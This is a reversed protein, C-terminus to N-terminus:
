LVHPEEEEFFPAALRMGPRADWRRTTVARTYRAAVDPQEARLRKVDIDTRVTQIWRCALAGELLGQGADGLWLQLQSDIERIHAAMADMQSQLRARLALSARAAEPLEVVRDPEPDFAARIAAATVTSADVPPPRRPLVHEYWFRRELDRLTDLRGPDPRVRRIYVPQGWVMGAVVAEPAGTVLLQHYVQILVHPPVQDDAWADAQRPGVAKIELPCVGVDPLGIWRDLDALLWPDSRSQLVTGAQRVRWGTERAVVDAIVAELLRGMAMAPTDPTPPLTGIKDLYVSLPSAWPSLGVIAPADSSGIGERRVALWQEHTLRARWARVRYPKAPSM